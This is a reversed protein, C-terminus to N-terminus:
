SSKEVVKIRGPKGGPVHSPVKPARSLADLISQDKNGVGHRVSERVGEEVSKGVNEGVRRGIRGGISEAVAQQAEVIETDGMVVQAGAVTSEEGAMAVGVGELTLGAEEVASTSLAAWEAADVIEGLGPVLNAVAVAPLLATAVKNNKVFASIREFFGPKHPATEANHAEELASDQTYTAQPANVLPFKDGFGVAQGNEKIFNILNRQANREGFLQPQPSQNSTYQDFKPDYDPNEEFLRGIGREHAEKFHDLMQQRWPVSQQPLSYGHPVQTWAMVQSWVIGGAAAIKNGARVMNPTAHVTYVIPHFQGGFKAAKAAADAAAAGFMDHTALFYSEPHRGLKEQNRMTNISYATVSLPRLKSIGDASTRFGGQRKAEKPWLYDGYFVIHAPKLREAQLQLPFDRGFGLVGMNPRILDLAYDKVPKDLFANWPAQSRAVHGQPFGVLEPAARGATFKDWKVDYDPNEHLKGQSKLRDFNDNSFEDVLYDDRIDSAEIWGIVQTWHIGGLAAFEAEDVLLHPGLSAAVDVMNPTGRICYVYRNLGGPPYSRAVEFYRSTSVYATDIVVGRERQLQVPWLKFADPSQFHTRPAFGGRSKVQAPSASEGRFVIEPSVLMSEAEIQIRHEPKTAPQIPDLPGPLNPLPPGLPPVPQSGFSPPSQPAPSANSNGM